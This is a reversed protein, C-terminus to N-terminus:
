LEIWAWNSGRGKGERRFSHWEPSSFTCGQMAAIQAPPVGQDLLSLVAALLLDAHWKDGRGKAVCLAADQPALGFTSSFIADIVDDGVEYRERGIAPGIAVRLLSADVGASKAAAVAERLIGATLGRWGAHVAFAFSRDLSVALLPLCDATKIAIRTGATTTILGDAEGCPATDRVPGSVRILSTGHVQRLHHATPTDLGVGQFGHTVGARELLQCTRASNVFDVAKLHNRRNM